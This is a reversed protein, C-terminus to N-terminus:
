VHGSEEKDALALALADRGRSLRSKVTGEAIRLTLAVEAVGLDALYHLAVVERQGAPLGRLAEIVDLRDELAPLDTPRAAVRDRIRSFNRLKRWRSRQLNIAVTRLWAEHNDLQPVPQRRHGVVFGQQLLDEAEAADGTVGYLQVVLRSYSVRFIERFGVEARGPAAERGSALIEAEMAAEQEIPCRSSEGPVSCTGDHACTGPEQAPVLSQLASMSRSEGARRCIRDDPEQPWTRPSSTTPTDTWTRALRDYRMTTRPDAHRAAIQVDRLDVGADLMTTVFTHRLMHPHRGASPMAEFQLHSLGLTPSEPPVHTRRVYEAPSHDLVGDIVCTRYFGTVVSLRRSVTSPKYRRVEQMWRLYLEIHPRQASLPVLEHRTCWDLFTRLDSATHSRSDGTYRALYAAVALRLSVDDALVPAPFNPASNM